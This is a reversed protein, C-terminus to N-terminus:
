SNEKLTELESQHTALQTAEEKSIYGLKTALMLCARKTEADVSSDALILSLKAVKVIRPEDFEVEVVNPLTDCPIINTITAM